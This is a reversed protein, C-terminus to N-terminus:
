ILIVLLTEEGHNADHKGGGLIVRGLSYKRTKRGKASGSSRGFPEM